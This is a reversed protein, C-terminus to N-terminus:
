RTTQTANGQAVNVELQTSGNSTAHAGDGAYIATIRHPGPATPIYTVSCSAIKGQSPTGLKCSAEPSFEGENDHTFSVAGTPPSPSGTIDTVTAKCSTAEGETLTSPQCSVTTQTSNKEAEAMIQFNATSSTHNNDGQYAATLKHPGAAIPSYTLSCSAKAQGESALQLRSASFRGAPSFSVIGTPVSPNSGPDTVTATCTALDGVIM